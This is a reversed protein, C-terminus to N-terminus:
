RRALPIFLLLIGSLIQSPVIFYMLFKIAKM